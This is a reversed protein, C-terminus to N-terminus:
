EQKARMLTFKLAERSDDKFSVTIALTDGTRRYECSALGGINTNNKFLVSSTSSEALPLTAITVLEDKWPNFKSDFHRLRLTPTSGEAKIALMEYLVTKGEHQWRFMGIISDGMAGSWTEEVPDGEMTGTWSGALWALPKLCEPDSAPTATAPPVPPQAPAPADPQKPAPQTIAIVALMLSLPLIM